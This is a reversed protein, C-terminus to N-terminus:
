KESFPRAPNCLSVKNESLKKVPLVSGELTTGVVVAVGDDTGALSVTSLAGATFLLLALVLGNKDGLVDGWCCCGALLSLLGKLEPCFNAVIPRVLGNEEGLLLLFGNRSLNSAGVAGVTGAGAAGTRLEAEGMDVPDGFLEGSAESSGVDSLLASELM